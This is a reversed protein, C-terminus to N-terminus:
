EWGNVNGFKTHYQGAINNLLDMWKWIVDRDNNDLKNSLWLKKFHNVKNNSIGNQSYLLCNEMFFEQNREEVQKKLPLLDRIFRGLVDYVPVQDKLFIRIIYLDAEEPFQEILEDIFDVLQKRFEYMIKIKITEDTSSMNKKKYMIDKFRLFQNKNFDNMLFTLEIM